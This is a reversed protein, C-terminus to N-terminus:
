RQRRRALIEPPAPQEHRKRRTSSKMRMTKRKGTWSLSQAHVRLKLEVWPTTTFIEKELGLELAECGSGPM